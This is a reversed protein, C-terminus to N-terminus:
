NPKKLWWMKLDKYSKHSNKFLQKEYSDLNNMFELNGGTFHDNLKFSLDNLESARDVLAKSILEVLEADGFMNSWKTVIRYYFMYPNLNLRLADSKIFNLFVPSFFEPELLKLFTTERYEDNEEYESSNSISCIALIEALWIPLELRVNEKIPRGPEGNLYGLGPITISFKCPLKQSDALIDDIDYYSM